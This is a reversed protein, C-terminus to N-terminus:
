VYVHDACQTEEPEPSQRAFTLAEELAADAERHIAEIAAEKVGREKLREGLVKLPDRSRWEAVESKSRYTEPDGFMHGALRYTVAEILTPGEGQRARTVAQLTVDYVAELDNGDV